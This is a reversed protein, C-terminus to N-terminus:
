GSGGVGLGDPGPLGFALRFQRATAELVERGAGLGLAGAEEDALVGLLVRSTLAARTQGGPMRDLEDEGLM